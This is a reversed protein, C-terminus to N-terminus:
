SSNKYTYYKELELHLTNFFQTYGCNKCILTLFAIVNPDQKKKIPDYSNCVEFTKGFEYEKKGCFICTTPDKVGKKTLAKLVADFFEKEDYESM